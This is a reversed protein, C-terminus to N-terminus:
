SSRAPEVDVDVDPREAEPTDEPTPHQHGLLRDYILSSNSSVDEDLRDLRASFREELKNMRWWLVAVAGVLPGGQEVLATVLEAELSLPLHPVLEIM